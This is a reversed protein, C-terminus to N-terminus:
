DQATAQRAEIWASLARRPVRVARGIRIVPLDGAAVLQYIKSRGIGLIQSCESIRLLEPEPM